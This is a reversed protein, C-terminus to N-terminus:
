GHKIGKAALVKLSALLAAKMQEGTLTGEAWCKSLHKAYDRVPVGEMSNIADAVKIATIRRSYITQEM